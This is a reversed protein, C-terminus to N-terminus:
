WVSNRKQRLRKAKAAAARLLDTELKDDGHRDNLDLQSLFQLADTHCYSSPPRGVFRTEVYLSGANRENSVTGDAVVVVHAANMAFIDDSARAAEADVGSWCSLTTELMRVIQAASTHSQSLSKFFDRFTVVGRRDCRSLWHPIRRALNQFNPKNLLQSVGFATLNCKVVLHIILIVYYGCFTEFSSQSQLDVAITSLQVNADEPLRSMIRGVTRPAPCDSKKTDIHIIPGDPRHMVTTYHNDSLVVAIFSCENIPLPVGPLLIKVPEGSTGEEAGFLPLKRLVYEVYPLPLETNCSRGFILARDSTIKKGEEIRSAVHAADIPDHRCPPCPTHV